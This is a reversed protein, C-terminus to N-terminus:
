DHVSGDPMTAGELSKAQLELEGKTRGKADELNADELDTDNLNAGSLDADSLDAGSLDAVEVEQFQRIAQASIGKPADIGKTSLLAGTLDADKLLRFELETGELSAGSLDAGDLRAVTLNSRALNAGDLSANSLLMGSLDTEAFNAEALDLVPSEKDILEAEYLFRLLNRKRDSDLRGLVTLTRARALTRVKSGEKSDLLNRQLM